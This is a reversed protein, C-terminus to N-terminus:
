NQRGMGILAEYREVVDDVLTTWPIPITRKANEGTRRLAQPDKLAGDIVRALDAADDACLYGNEGERICEAASSDRVAVSPTGM